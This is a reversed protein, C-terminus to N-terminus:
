VFPNYRSFFGYFWSGQLVSSNFHPLGDSTIIVIAWAACLLLLVYVIGLVLGAAGGFIRNLAGIGPVRNVRTLANVLFNVLLGALAFTVFFIVVAIIPLFLPAIVQDVVQAAVGPVKDDVMTQLQSAGGLLTKVLTDPLFAALKDVISQVSITGGDRIMQSTRNILGARLFQDFISAPLKQSAIWAAALTLAMGCLRLLTALFGRNAAVIVSVLIVAGLALDFILAPAIQM